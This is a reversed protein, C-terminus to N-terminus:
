LLVSWAFSELQATVSEEVRILMAKAHGGGDGVLGGGPGTKRFGWGEWYNVVCQTHAADAGTCNPNCIRRACDDLIAVRALVDLCHM